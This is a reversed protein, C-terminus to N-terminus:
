TEPNRARMIQTRLHDRRHRLKQYHKMIMDTGKHGLIEAAQAVGTGSELLDTAVAHRYLYAVVDTGLHLKERVRRFRCRVSNRTWPRGDENRFLPGQPYIAILRRTLDIMAPTLIVVRPEGTKGETKHEGLVWVGTHPEFHDATVMAVEGPRCGTQELAFLFDRFPDGAPYNDFIKQREEATLFRERARAPPKRVAKLPNRTIKNNEFAWNFARKLAIVAGRRCGKWAPHANLWAEVVEPTVQHPKLVGYVDDFTVLFSRYWEFTRKDNHEASFQLFARLIDSVKCRTPPPFEEGQAMLQNFLEYAQQRNEKGKVLKKLFRKRGQRLQIYWWGDFKRFFPKEPMAFRGTFVL